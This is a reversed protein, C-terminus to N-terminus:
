ISSKTPQDLSKREGGKKKENQWKTLYICVNYAHPLTSRKKKKESIM